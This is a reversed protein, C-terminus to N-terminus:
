KQAISAVADNIIKAVHQNPQYQKILAQMMPTNLGRISISDDDIIIRRPNRSQFTFYSCDNLSVRCSSDKQEILDGIRRIYSNEFRVYPKGSKSLLQSVIESLEIETIM